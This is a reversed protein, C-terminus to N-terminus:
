AQRQKLAGPFGPPTYFLNKFNADGIITPQSRLSDMAHCANAPCQHLQSATMALPRLLRGVGMLVRNPRLKEVLRIGANEDIHM